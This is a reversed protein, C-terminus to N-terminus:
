QAAGPESDSGDPGLAAGAGDAEAKAIEGNLRRAAVETDFAQQQAMRQQYREAVAQWEDGLQQVAEGVPSSDPYQVANGTDLRREGVFLPIIHVM